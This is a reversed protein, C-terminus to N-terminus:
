SFVSWSKKEKKKPPERIPVIITDKALFEAPKYDFPLCKINKLISRSINHTSLHIIQIQIVSSHDSTLSILMMENDDPILKM